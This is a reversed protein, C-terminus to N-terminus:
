LHYRLSYSKVQETGDILESKYGLFPYGWGKVTALSVTKSKGKKTEPLKGIDAETATRKVTGNDTLDIVRLPSGDKSPSGRSVFNLISMMKLTVCITGIPKLAFSCNVFEYSKRSVKVIVFFNLAKQNTSKNVRSNSQNHVGLASVYDFFCLNTM